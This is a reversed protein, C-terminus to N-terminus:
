PLEAVATLEESGNLVTSDHFLNYLVRRNSMIHQEDTPYRKGLRFSGTSALATPASVRQFYKDLM